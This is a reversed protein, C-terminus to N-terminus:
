EKCYSDSSVANHCVHGDSSRDADCLNITVGDDNTALLTGNLFIL